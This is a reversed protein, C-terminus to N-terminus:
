EKIIKSLSDYSEKTLCRWVKDQRSGEVWDKREIATAVDSVSNAWTKGDFYAYPLAWFGTNKIEYVGPRTPKEDPGFWETM